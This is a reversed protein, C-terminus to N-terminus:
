MTTTIITLIAEVFQKGHPSLIMKSGPHYSLLTGVLHALTNFVELTFNICLSPENIKNYLTLFVINYVYISWYITNHKDGKEVDEPERQVQAQRSPQPRGRTSLTRCTGRTSLTRCTGQSSRAVNQFILPSEPDDDRFSVSEEVTGNASCIKLNIVLRSAAINVMSLAFSHLTPTPFALSDSM